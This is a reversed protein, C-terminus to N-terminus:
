LIPSEVPRIRRFFIAAASIHLVQFLLANLGNIKKDPFNLM